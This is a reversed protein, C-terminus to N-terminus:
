RVPKMEGNKLRRVYDDAMSKVKGSLFVMGIINPFAMSLLLMDAFDIINTLSLIPGIVVMVVYVVRFPMIGRIGVLYETAREGYYGWSIITSYAFVFVAIVLLYPLLPHLSEFAAATLEAGDTGRLSDSRTILIALATVTCVIITDIFPGMMAVVGERVPEETKAAAHAIAASGLGAENSFAARRMGQVLVGLFGGFMADPTFASGFISGFMAPVQGANALIIVLCVGCYFVCMAPVLRSTIEGIRKIGGIIVVAVLFALVLGIGLMVVRSTSGDFFYKAVINATQNSQFMNGGGFSAFITLIAFLVAAGKGVAPGVVTNKLGQELYVMPGGLVRGDEHVHRHVHALTCSSFKMSMGFFATFWMWFVAGPGGMTIAVAVGAINGLGVTASLASTLAKFHSVEGTDEPRDYKGRIVAISHGFLRLNILGYRFTFFVGGAFLVVVILPLETRVYRPGVSDDVATAYNGADDRVYTGDEHETHSAYVSFFLVRALHSVVNEGFWADFRVLAGPDSVASEVAPPEGSEEQAWIAPGFLLGGSMGAILIMSWFRRNMM